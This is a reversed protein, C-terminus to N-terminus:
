SLYLIYSICTLKILQFIVSFIIIAFKIYFQIATPHVYKAECGKTEKAHWARENSTECNRLKTISLAKQQRTPSVM